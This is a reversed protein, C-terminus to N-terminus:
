DVEYGALYYGGNVYDEKLNDDVGSMASLLKQRAKRMENRADDITKMKGEFPLIDDRTSLQSVVFASVLACAFSSGRIPKGTWFPSRFYGFTSVVGVNVYTTSYNEVAIYGATPLIAGVVDDGTELLDFLGFDRIAHNLLGSIVSDGQRSMIKHPIYTKRVSTATIVNTFEESYCAPYAPAIDLNPDATQKENGAATVVFIGAKMLQAIKAKLLPEDWRCIWSANIVRINASKQQCLIYDLGNLVDFLTTMGVNDFAKVPVVPANDGNQQILATVTSGHRADQLVTEDTDEFIRCDDYPSNKVKDIMEAPTSEQLSQKISEFAPQGDQRYAQIACFGLRNNASVADCKMQSPDHYALNFQQETGDADRYIYPNDIGTEMDEPSDYIKFKLGTDLVAVSPRRDQGNLHEYHQIDEPTALKFDTSQVNSSSVASTWPPRPPPNNPGGNDESLVFNNTQSKKLQFKVTDTDPDFLVVNSFLYPSPVDENWTLLVTEEGNTTKTEPCHCDSSIIHGPENTVSLLKIIRDGDIVGVQLRDKTPEKRKLRELQDSTLTVIKQKLVAYKAISSTPDPVRAVDSGLYRVFPETSDTPRTPEEPQTRDSPGAHTITGPDNRGKEPSVQVPVKGFNPIDLHFLDSQSSM